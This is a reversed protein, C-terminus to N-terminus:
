GQGYLFPRARMRVADTSRRLPHRPFWDSSFQIRRTPKPVSAARSLLRTARERILLREVLRTSYQVLGITWPTFAEFGHSSHDVITILGAPQGDLLVPLSHTEDAPLAKIENHRELSVRNTAGDAEILVEAHEFQISISSAIRDLVDVVDDEEVLARYADVRAEKVQASIVYVLYGGISPDGTHNTAAIDAHFWSGQAQRLRIPRLALRGLGSTDFDTPNIAEELLIDAMEALDDVHILDIGSTGILVAPDYGLMVRVGDSVFAITYDPLLFM